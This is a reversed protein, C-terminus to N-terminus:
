SAGNLASSAQQVIEIESWLKSIFVMRGDSQLGGKIFSCNRHSSISIWWM